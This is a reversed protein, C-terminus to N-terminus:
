CHKNISLRTIHWFNQFQTCFFLVVQM